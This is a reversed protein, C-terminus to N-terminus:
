AQITVAWVRRVARVSRRDLLVGMVFRTALAVLADRAVHRLDLLRDGVHVDPAMREVENSGRRRLDQLNRVGAVRAM